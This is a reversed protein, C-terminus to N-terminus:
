LLLVNVLPELFTEWTCRRGLDTWGRALSRLSRAPRGIQPLYRRYPWSWSGWLEACAVVGRV